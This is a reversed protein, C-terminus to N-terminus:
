NLGIGIPEGITRHKKLKRYITVTEFAPGVEPRQTVRRYIDLGRLEIRAYYGEGDSGGSLLLVPGNGGVTLQCYSPNLLDMLVHNLYIRSKGNSLWSDTMIREARGTFSIGELFNYVKPPSKEKTM